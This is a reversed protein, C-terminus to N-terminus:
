WSSSFNRTTTITTKEKRQHAQGHLILLPFRIDLVMASEFFQRKIVSMREGFEQALNNGGDVLGNWNFNKEKKTKQTQRGKRKSKNFIMNEM